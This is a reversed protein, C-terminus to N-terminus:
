FAGSNHQKPGQLHHTIQLTASVQYGDKEPAMGTITMNAPNFGSMIRAAQEGENEDIITFFVPFSGSVDHSWKEAHSFGSVMTIAILVLLSYKM